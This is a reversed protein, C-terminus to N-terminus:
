ELFSYKLMDKHYSIYLKYSLKISLFKRIQLIHSSNNHGFDVRFTNPGKLVARWTSRAM